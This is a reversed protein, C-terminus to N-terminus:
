EGLFADATYGSGMHNPDMQHWVTSMLRDSTCRIRTDACGLMGSPGSLYMMVATLLALSVALYEIAALGQQRKRSHFRM